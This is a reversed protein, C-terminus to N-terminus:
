GRRAHGRVRDGALGRPLARGHGPRHPEAAPRRSLAGPVGGRHGRHRWRHWGAHVGAPHGRAPRDRRLADDIGAQREADTAGQIIVSPAYPQDIRDLLDRFRERDEAMEIAEISTGLLRTGFRELLGARAVDVALNLATQGGLGALIGEPRERELIREVSAVTLPELYVADAVGPDTMITAPNSNLLITRIGEERLARCAQTGAYDFEAAQGIVVPGSGIILVSRAQGATADPASRHGAPTM